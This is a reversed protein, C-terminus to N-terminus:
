KEKESKLYGEDRSIARLFAISVLFALVNRPGGPANLYLQEINGEIMLVLFAQVAWVLERLRRTYDGWLKWARRASIYLSATSFFVTFIRLIDYWELNNVV